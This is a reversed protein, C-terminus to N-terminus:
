LLLGTGSLVCLNVFLSLSSIAGALEKYLVEDAVPLVSRCERLNLYWAIAIAIGMTFLSMVRFDHSNHIRHNFVLVLIIVNAVSMVTLAGFSYWRYSGM